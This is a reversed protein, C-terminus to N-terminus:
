IIKKENLIKVIKEIIDADGSISLGIYTESEVTIVYDNIKVELMEIEQSGGLGWDHSKVLGGLDKLVNILSERLSNDYEDGLNKKIICKSNNM